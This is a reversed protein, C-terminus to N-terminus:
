IDVELPNNQQDNDGMIINAWVDHMMSNHYQIEEVYRIIEKLNFRQKVAGNGITASDNQDYETLAM